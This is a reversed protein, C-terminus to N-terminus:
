LRPTTLCGGDVELNLKGVGREIHSAQRKVAPLLATNQEIISTSSRFMVQQAKRRQFFRHVTALM